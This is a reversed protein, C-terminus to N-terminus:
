WGGSMRKIEQNVKQLFLNAEEETVGKPLPFFQREPNFFSGPMGQVPIPVTNTTTPVKATFTISRTSTRRGKYTSLRDDIRAEKVTKLDISKIHEWKWWKWRYELVGDALRLYSNAMGWIFGLVMAGGGVWVLMNVFVYFLSIVIETENPAGRIIEAIEEAMNSFYFFGFVVIGLIIIRNWWVTGEDQKPRLEEM